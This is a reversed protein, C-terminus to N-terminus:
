VSNRWLLVEFNDPVVQTSTLAYVQNEHTGAIPKVCSDSLKCTVKM